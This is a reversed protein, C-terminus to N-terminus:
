LPRMPDWGGADGDGQPGRARGRGPKVVVVACALQQLDSEQAFREVFRKVALLGISRQRFLIISRHADVLLQWPFRGSTCSGLSRTSSQSRARPRWPASTRLSSRASAEVSAPLLSFPTGSPFATSSKFHLAAPWLTVDPLLIANVLRGMKSLAAWAQGETWGVTRLKRSAAMFECGVQWPLALPRVTKVLELARQQKRTDRHDHCYGWINTDLANM